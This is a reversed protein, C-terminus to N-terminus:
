LIFSTMIQKRCPGQIKTEKITFHGNFIPIREQVFFAMTGLEYGTINMKIIIYKKLFFQICNIIWM